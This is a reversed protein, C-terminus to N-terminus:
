FVYEVKYNKDDFVLKGNHILYKNNKEFQSFLEKHEQSDSFDITYSATMDDPSESQVRPNFSTVWWQKQDPKYEGILNGEKDKLVLSMKLALKKDVLWQDEVPTSIETGVFPMETENSYIGMEAGAGLNMYDGKWAWIRYKRNNLVFDFHDTRMCTAADFVDDYLYNYGGIQQWCNFTSHYYGKKDHSFGFAKFVDGVNVESFPINLEPHESLFVAVQNDIVSNALGRTVEKTTVKSKSNSLGLFISALALFNLHEGMKKDIDDKSNGARDTNARYMDAQKKLAKTDAKHAEYDEEMIMFAENNKIGRSQYIGISISEDHDISSISNQIDQVTQFLEATSAKTDNEIQGIQANLSSTYLFMNKMQDSINGYYPSQASMYQSASAVVSDVEERIEEFITNKETLIEEGLMELLNQKIIGTDDTELEQYKGAYIDFYAQFRDLLQIISQILPIQVEQVHLRISDGTAGEITKTNELVHLKTKLDEYEKLWDKMQSDIMNKVANLDEMRVDYSMDCEGKNEQLLGRIRVNWKM